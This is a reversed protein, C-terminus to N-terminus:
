TAEASFSSTAHGGGCLLCPGCGVERGLDHRACRHVVDRERTVGPGQGEDRQVVAEVVGLGVREPRLRDRAQGRRDATVPFGNMKATPASRVPTGYMPERSWASSIARAPWAAYAAKESRGTGVNANTLPAAM